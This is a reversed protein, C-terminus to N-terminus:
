FGTTNELGAAKGSYHNWNLATTTIRSEWIFALNHEELCHDTNEQGVWVRLGYDEVRFVFGGM